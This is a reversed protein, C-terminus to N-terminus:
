RMGKADKPDAAAGPKLRLMPVNSMNLVLEEPRKWTDLHEESQPPLMVGVVDEYKDSLRTLFCAHTAHWCPRM